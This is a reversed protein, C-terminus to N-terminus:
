KLTPAEYVRRNGYNGISIKGQQDRTAFEDSMGTRGIIESQGCNCQACDGARHVEKPNVKNAHSCIECTV